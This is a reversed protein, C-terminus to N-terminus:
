KKAVRAKKPKAGHYMVSSVYGYDAKVITGYRSSAAQVEAPSFSFALSFVLLFAILSRTIRKM